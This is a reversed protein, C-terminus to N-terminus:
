TKLDAKREEYTPNRKAEYAAKQTVFCDSFETPIGLAEFNPNMTM